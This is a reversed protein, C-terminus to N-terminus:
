ASHSVMETSQYQIIAGTIHVVLRYYIIM